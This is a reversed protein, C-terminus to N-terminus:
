FSDYQLFNLLDFFPKVRSCGSKGSIKGKNCQTCFRVRKNLYKGREVLSKRLSTERCLLLIKGEKLDFYFILILLCILWTTRQIQKENDEINCKASFLSRTILDQLLKRSANFYKLQQLHRKKVIDKYTM